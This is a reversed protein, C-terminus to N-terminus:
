SEPNGVLWEVLDIKTLITVPRREEDVVVASGSQLLVEQLASLPTTREVTPVSRDMVAM